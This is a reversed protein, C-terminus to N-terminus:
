KWKKPRAFLSFISFIPNIVLYRILELLPSIWGLDKENLKHACTQLIIIQVVSRLLFISFLIFMNGDLFALAIISLYFLYLSLLYTFLVVKDRTQYYRATTHHRMKQRFWAKWSQKAMSVTHCSPDIAIATNVSNSIENVFLDDDGSTLHMHSAFGKNKFFYSKKYSMNRGVGMYAAKALARSLYMVGIQFTDFRIFLNLLGKDKAYKGYGLVIGIEDSHYANMMKQIWFKGEPYCDADTLLLTEYQAAKIGITLAFKKGHERGEVEKIEAIKLIGPYQAALEKLFDSSGDWSCDNVVIVEFTKYEQQLILSLFNRLNDEENRACIIISVPDNKDLEKSKYFSLRIFFVLHYFIQTLLSAICIVYLWLFQSQLFSELTV